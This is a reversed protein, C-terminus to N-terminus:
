FAAKCLRKSKSANEKDQQAFRERQKITRLTERQRTTRIKEKKSANGKHQQRYTGRTKNPFHKGKDKM